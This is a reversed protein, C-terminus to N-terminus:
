NGNLDRITEIMELACLMTDYGKNCKSGGSRALAQDKNDVTLVGFVVPKKYKIALDCCGNSVMNCVYDFHKTEGQIVSGLCLVASYNVILNAAVVPIEVAGPVWVTKPLEANTQQQWAKYAGDLLRESIELNFRSVVIAVKNLKM